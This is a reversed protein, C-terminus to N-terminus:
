FTFMHEEYPYLDKGYISPSIEMMSIIKPLLRLASTVKENLGISLLWNIVDGNSKLVCDCAANAISQIEDIMVVKM